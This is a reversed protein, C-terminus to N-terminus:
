SHHNKDEGKTNQQRALYRDSWRALSYIPYGIVAVALLIFIILSLWSPLLPWIVRVFYILGAALVLALALAVIFPVFNGKTM